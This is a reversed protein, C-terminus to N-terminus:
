RMLSINRPPRRASFQFSEQNISRKFKQIGQAAIYVIRLDSDKLGRRLIPISRKNMWASAINVAQLRDDPGLSMLKELTKQLELKGKATKPWTWEKYQHKRLTNNPELGSEKLQVLSITEQRLDNSYGQNTELTPRKKNSKGLGWILVALVVAISGAFVQNM